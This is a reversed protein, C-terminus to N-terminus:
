IWNGILLMTALNRVALLLPAFRQGTRSIMFLLAFDLDYLAICFGDMSGDLKAQEKM